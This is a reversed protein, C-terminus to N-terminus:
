KLEELYKYSFGLFVSGRLSIFSGIMSSNMSNRLYTCFYKEDWTWDHLQLFSFHGFEKFCIFSIKFCRSASTVENLCWAPNDNFGQTMTQWCKVKGQMNRWKLWIQSQAVGHVTARWVRRDMPDGPLFVPTPQWERRRQWERRWPIKGVWSNFRCRKHRRCQWAAEKDSTGGPFDESKRPPLYCHM